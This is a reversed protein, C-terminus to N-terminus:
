LTSKLKIINIQTFLTGLTSKGSGINGELIYIHGRFQLLWRQQKPRTQKYPRFAFIPISDKLKPVQDELPRPTDVRVGDIPALFANLGAKQIKKYEERTYTGHLSTEFLNEHLFSVKFRKDQDNVEKSNAM